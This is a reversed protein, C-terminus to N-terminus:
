KITIDKKYENFGEAVLIVGIMIMTTGRIGIRAGEIFAKLCKMNM